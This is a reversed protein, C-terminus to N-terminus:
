LSLVIFVHDLNVTTRPFKCIVLNKTSDLQKRRPRESWKNILETYAACL